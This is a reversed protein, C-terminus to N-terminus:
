IGGPFDSYEYSTRSNVPLLQQPILESDTYVELGKRWALKALATAEFHIFNKILQPRGQHDQSEIIGKLGQEILIKNKSLFGEFVTSVSQYAQAWDVSWERLGEINGRLGDTDDSLVSQIAKGFYTSFSDPYETRQYTNYRDIAVQSDSLLPYTFTDLANFIEGNIQEHYYANVMAIRYLYLKSEQIDGQVFAKNLFFITNVGKLSLVHSVRMSPDEMIKLAKQERAKNEAFLVKLHEIQENTVM